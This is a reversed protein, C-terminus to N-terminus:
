SILTNLVFDEIKFIYMFLVFISLKVKKCLILFMVVKCRFYLIMFSKKGIAIASSNCSRSISRVLMSSKDGSNCKRASRKRERDSVNTEFRLGM